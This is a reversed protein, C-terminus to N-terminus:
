SGVRVEQQNVAAGILVDRLPLALDEMSRRGVMALQQQEVGLIV